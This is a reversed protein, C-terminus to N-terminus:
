EHHHNRVNGLSKVQERSHIPSLVVTGSVVHIEETGNQSQYQKGESVQEMHQTAAVALLVGISVSMSM